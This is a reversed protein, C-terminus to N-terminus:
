PRAVVHHGLSNGGIQNGGDFPEGTLLAILQRRGALRARRDGHSFAAEVLCEDRDVVVVPRHGEIVVLM